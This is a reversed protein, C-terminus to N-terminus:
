RGPATYPARVTRLGGGLDSAVPGRPLDSSSGWGSAELGSRGAPGRAVGSGESIDYAGGWHWRLDELEAAAGRGLGM